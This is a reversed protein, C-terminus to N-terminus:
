IKWKMPRFLGIPAPYMRGKSKASKKRKQGGSKKVYVFKDEYVKVTPQKVSWRKNYKIANAKAEAATTGRTTIFPRGVKKGYEYHQTYAAYKREGSKAM